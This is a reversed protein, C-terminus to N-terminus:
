FEQIAWIECLSVFKSFKGKKELIKKNLINELLLINKNNLNTQKTKKVSLDAEVLM